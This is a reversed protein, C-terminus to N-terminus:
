KKGDYYLLVIVNNNYIGTANAFMNGLAAAGILATSDGGIHGM